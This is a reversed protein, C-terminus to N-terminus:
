LSLKSAQVPARRFPQAQGYTLSRWAWELPGFRFSRLWLPSATLVFASTALVVGEAELLTLRGMLGGAHGYSLTTGVLSCLVYNTFALRGAAALPWARLGKAVALNVLAAYGVAGLLGEVGGLWLWRLFASPYDGEFGGSWVGMAGIRWADLSWAAALCPVAVLLYTRWSLRATLFGLRYLAVGALMYALVMPGSIALGGISEAAFGLRWAVQSGVGGELAATEEALSRAVDASMEAAAAESAAVALGLVGNLLISLLLLGGAWALVSRTGRGAFLMALLGILAYATLVDGAWILVAHVLGFALLWLQRRVLRSRPPVGAAEAKDALLALGAGYLIAFVAIWKGDVAYQLFEDIRLDYPGLFARPDFLTSVPALMNRINVTFIM